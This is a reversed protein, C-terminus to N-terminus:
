KVPLESLVVVGYKRPTSGVLKVSLPVAYVGMAACFFATVANKSDREV